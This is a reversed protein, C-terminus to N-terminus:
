AFDTDCAKVLDNLVEHRLSTFCSDLWILISATVVM